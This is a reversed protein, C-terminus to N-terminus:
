GRGLPSRTRQPPCEGKASGNSGASISATWVAGVKKRLSNQSLNNPTSKRRSLIPYELKLMLVPSEAPRGVPDSYYPALVDYFENWPIVQLARRLYHGPPVFARFIQQDFESLHPRYYLDCLMRTEETLM